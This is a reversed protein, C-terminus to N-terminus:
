YCNNKFEEFESYDRVKIIEGDKKIINVPFSLKPIPSLNPHLYQYKGYYKDWYFPIAPYIDHYTYIFYRNFWGLVFRPGLQYCYNITNHNRPSVEHVWSFFTPCDEQLQKFMFEDEVSVINMNKDLIYFPYNITLNLNELSYFGKLSDILTSYDQYSKVKFTTLGNLNINIPFFVDYCPKENLLSRQEKVDNNIHNPNEDQYTKIPLSGYNDQYTDDKTCSYSYLLVSIFVLKKLM